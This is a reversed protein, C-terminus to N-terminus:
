ETRLPRQILAEAEESVIRDRAQALLQHRICGDHRTFAYQVVPEAGVSSKITTATRGYNLTACGHEIALELLDLLLNLYLQHTPNYAPDIAAYHAISRTADRLLTAFGILEDGDFYGLVDVDTPRAAKLREFYGPPVRYPVYLARALLGAYLADIRAGHREVEDNTLVRRRLHGFLRRARRARRRYKSPLDALYDAYSTWSARLTLVMEPLAAVELWGTPATAGPVDKIMWTSSPLERTLAAAAEALLDQLETPRQAAHGGPGSFLVQGFQYLREGFMTSAIGPRLRAGLKMARTPLAQLLTIARPTGVDGFLLYRTDPGGARAFVSLWSRQLFPSAGCLADWAVPLATPQTLATLTEGSALRYRVPAAVEPPSALPM